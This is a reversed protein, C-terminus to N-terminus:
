KIFISANEQIYCKVSQSQFSVTDRSPHYAFVNAGLVEGYEKGSFVERFVDTDIEKSGLLAGIVRKGAEHRPQDPLLKPSEFKNKVERLISEEIAASFFNLM